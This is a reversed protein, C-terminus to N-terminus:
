EAGEMKHILGTTSYGEIYKVLEVRTVYERGIVNELQYDGGKVLVDPKIDRLLLEPTNENFITVYDVCGLAAIVYARDYEQNLPRGEGKLRRVSSDSNVAVILHQCYQAAAYISYVHGKHFIDYCGNTFAITEKKRKWERVIDLLKEHTVIKNNLKRLQEFQVEELEKESVTATGTKGVVIGAAENALQITQLVGDEKEGWFLGLVAIVTDGAGSVDYVERARSPMHTITNEKDILTIGKESRTIMLYDINLSQYLSFCKKEIERDENIIDQSLFESLEKLNPSILTAGRYKEWEKGKPDILISVGFSNCLTIVRQCFEKKCIGKAYDSLIVADYESIYQQLLIFLEDLNNDSPRQDDNFDLRVIQQSNGLIRKKRITHYEADVIIGQCSINYKKLLGTLEEGASDAGIIGILLADGGLATINNAVNAAGGLRCYEEKMKVIPVPAEPSIRSVSGANYQDLMIDGIVIVKNKKYNM